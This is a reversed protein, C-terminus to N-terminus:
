LSWNAMWYGGDKNSDSYGLMIEQSDNRARLHLRYIPDAFAAAMLDAIRSLDEITEFLPVLELASHVQGNAYRWLDVEKALLLVELLDSVKHTM